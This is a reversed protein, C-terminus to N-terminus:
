NTKQRAKGHQPSLVGKYCLAQIFLMLLLLLLFLLLLSSSFNQLLKLVYNASVFFYDVKDVLSKDYYKLFM